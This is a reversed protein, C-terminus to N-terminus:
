DLVMFQIYGNMLLETNMEMFLRQYNAPGFFTWLWDTVKKILKSCICTNNSFTLALTILTGSITAFLIYLSSGMNYFFNSTSYSILELRDNLPELTSPTFSERGFLGDTMKDSPLMDFTTIDILAGCLM